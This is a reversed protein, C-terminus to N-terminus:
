NCFPAAEGRQLPWHRADLSSGQPPGRGYPARPCGGGEDSGWVCASACAPGRRATAPPASGANAGASTAATDPEQHRASRGAAQGGDEQHRGRRHREPRAAGLRRHGLRPRAALRPVRRAARAGEPAAMDMLPQLGMRSLSCGWAHSAAVGHTLPQLGMRSLSCGWAHSAAVGHTLPQLGM